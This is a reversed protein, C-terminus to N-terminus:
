MIKIVIKLILCIICLTLTLVGREGVFFFEPHAGSGIGNQLIQYFYMFLYAIIIKVRGINSGVCDM